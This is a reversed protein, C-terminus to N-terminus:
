SLKLRRLVQHFSSVEAAHDQNFTTGDFIRGILISASPAVYHVLGALHTGHGNSDICDHMGPLFNQSQLHLERVHSSGPTSSQSRSKMGLAM